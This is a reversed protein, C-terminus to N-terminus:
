RVVGSLVDHDQVVGPSHARVDPGALRLPNNRVKFHLRTLRIPILTQGRAARSLDTVKEFCVADM